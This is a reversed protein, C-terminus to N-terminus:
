NKPKTEHGLRIALDCAYLFHGGQWGPWDVKSKRLKVETDQGYEDTIHRFSIDV